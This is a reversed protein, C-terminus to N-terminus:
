ARAPKGARCYDWGISFARDTLDETPPEGGSSELGPSFSISRM